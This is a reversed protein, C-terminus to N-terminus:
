GVPEHDRDPSRDRDPDPRRAPRRRVVYALGGALVLVVVVGVVGAIAGSLRADDVDKASYDALPGDATRHDEATDAFGQDHAVRELGDPAGSAYFSVVGALLLAVVGVGLAVWRTRVRSM